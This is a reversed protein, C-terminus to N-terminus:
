QRPKNTVEVYIVALGQNYDLTRSYVTGNHYKGFVKDNRGPIERVISLDHNERAIEEGTDKVFVIIIKM